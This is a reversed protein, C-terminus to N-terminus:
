LFLFHCFYLITVHPPSTLFNYELARRTGELSVSYGSFVGVGCPMVVNGEYAVLEYEFGRREGEETAASLRDNLAWHAASNYM